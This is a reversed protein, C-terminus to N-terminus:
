HIVDLYRSLLFDARHLDFACSPYFCYMPFSTGIERMTVFLIVVKLPDYLTYFLEPM